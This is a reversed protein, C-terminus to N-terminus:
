DMWLFQYEEMHYFKAKKQPLLFNRIPNLLVRGQNLQICDVGESGTATLDM